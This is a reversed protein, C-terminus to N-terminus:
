GSQVVRSEGAGSFLRLGKFSRQGKCGQNGDAQVPPVENGSTPVGRQGPPNHGSRLPSSIQLRSCTPGTKPLPLRMGPIGALCGGLTLSTGQAGLVVQLPSDPSVLAQLGHLAFASLSLQPSKSALSSLNLDLLFHFCVNCSENM